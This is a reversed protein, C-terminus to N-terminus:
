LHDILGRQTPILHGGILIHLPWIHLTHSTLHYVHSTHSTTCTLHHMHSNHSITCTHPPTRSLHTLCYVHSIHSTTCTHSTHPSPAHMLNCTHTTHPPAYTLHHMHSTICTQTLIYMHNTHPSNLRSVVAFKLIVRACVFVSCKM